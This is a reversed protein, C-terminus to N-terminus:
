KFLHQYISLSGEWLKYLPSLPRDYTGMWVTPESVFFMKFKSIGDNLLGNLDYLKAGREKAALMATWKLLYNARLDKGTDTVGGWLEFACGNTTVNWLFAQIAGEAEAVFLQNIDDCVEFACKYYEDDHIFFNDAEATARYIALIADLDAEQAPRVTVGNRGAKRIYQRAKKSHLAKFLAEEDQTLDLTATNAIFVTSGEQWSSSLQCESATIGPDIKFSVAKCNDKVWSAFADAVAPFEQITAPVPGRPAYAIASFPKPLKRVLIQAAGFFAGDQTAVIRHATWSGTKEKLEGWGWAQCPHGDHADILEDWQAKNTIEEFQLM